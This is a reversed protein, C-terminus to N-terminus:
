IVGFNCEKIEENCLVADLFQLVSVKIEIVFQQCDRWFENGQTFCCFSREFNDKAPSWFLQSTRLAQGNERMEARGLQILHGLLVM